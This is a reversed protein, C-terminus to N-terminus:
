IHIKPSELEERLKEQVFKPPKRKGKEWRWLTSPDIGLEKALKEQSLGLCKRLLRIEEGPTLGHIDYPIYGLFKIIKPISRLSPSTRNKEWNCITDKTVGLIKAVEKQQLGLDLRKKKM